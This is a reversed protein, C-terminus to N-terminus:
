KQTIRNTYTLEYTERPIDSWKDKKYTKWYIREPIKKKKYKWTYWETYKRKLYRKTYTKRNPRGYIDRSIIQKM